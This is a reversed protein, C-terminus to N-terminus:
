PQRLAEATVCRAIHQGWDQDDPVIYLRSNNRDTAVDYCNFELVVGGEAKYVTFTMGRSGLRNPVLLHKSPSTTPYKANSEEASESERILHKNEWAWKSKRIFWRDFWNMQTEM